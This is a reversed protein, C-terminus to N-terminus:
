KNKKLFFFMTIDVDDGDDNDVSCVIFNMAVARGAVAPMVSMAKTFENIKEALQSSLVMKRENRQEALSLINRSETYKEIELVINYKEKFKLERIGCLNTQLRRPTSKM